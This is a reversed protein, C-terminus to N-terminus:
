DEGENLWHKLNELGVCAGCFHRALREDDRDQAKRMLDFYTIMLEDIRNEVQELTIDKRM